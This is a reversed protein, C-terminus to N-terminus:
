DWDRALTAWAGVVTKCFDNIKMDIDIEEGMYRIITFQAAPGSWRRGECVESFDAVEPAVVM